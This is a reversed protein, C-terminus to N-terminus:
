GFHGLAPLGPLYPACRRTSFSFCQIKVCRRAKEVRGVHRAEVIRKRSMV